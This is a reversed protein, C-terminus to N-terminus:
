AVGQLSKKASQVARIVEDRRLHGKPAMKEIRGYVQDLDRATMQPLEALLVDVPDPGDGPQSPAGFDPGAAALAADVLVASSSHSLRECDEVTWAAYAKKAGLVREVWLQFGDRTCGAAQMAKWARAREAESAPEVTRPDPASQEDDENLDQSFLDSCRALALAADVLARKKAMKLITNELDAIGENEVRGLQQGTVNDDGAAFKAGCGGKAAHCYWGGGYEKKSRRITPQGCEPCQRQAERWRYRSEHSNASGFGQALVMGTDRSTIQVKFIYHFFGRRFSLRKHIIEFEPTCRFLDMLKEAGPKWLSPKETGPIVGYDVDRRMHDRVFQRILGRREREEELSRRLQQTVVAAGDTSVALASVEVKPTAVGQGQQQTRTRVNEEGIRRKAPAQL